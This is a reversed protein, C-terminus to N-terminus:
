FFFLIRAFFEVGDDECKVFFDISRNSLAYITSTLKTNHWNMSGFAAFLHDESTNEIGIYKLLDLQNETLSIRCPNKFTIDTETNRKSNVKGQNISSKSCYKFAIQMLVDQTGSVYKRLNGNNTEFHFLSTTWLPGSYTVSEVIHLLRHINMNMTVNRVGYLVEYECVFKKLNGEIVKLRELLISEKLLEYISESLVCFHQHYKQPLIGRLIIPFVYLLLTRYENAKFLQLYKLIRPKRSIFSRLRLNKIRNNIVKKAKSNM